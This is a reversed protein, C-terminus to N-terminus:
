GVVLFEGEYSDIVFGVESLEVGVILERRRTLIVGGSVMISSAHLIAVVVRLGILM